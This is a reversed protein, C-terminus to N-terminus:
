VKSEEFGHQVTNTIHNKEAILVNAPKIDRHLLPPKLNVALSSQLILSLAAKFRSLMLTKTVM